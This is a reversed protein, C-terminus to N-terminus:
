LVFRSDFRKRTAQYRCFLNNFSHLDCKYVKNNIIISHNVMWCSSIDLVSTKSPYVTEM